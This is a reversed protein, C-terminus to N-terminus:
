PAVVSIIFQHQTITTNKIKLISHNETPLLFTHLRCKVKFRSFKSTRHIHPEGECRLYKLALSMQMFHELATDELLWVRLKRFSHFTILNLRTFIIFLSVSDEDKNMKKVPVNLVHRRRLNLWRRQSAGVTNLSVWMSFYKTFMIMLPKTLFFTWYYNYKVRWKQSLQCIISPISTWDGEWLNSGDELCM